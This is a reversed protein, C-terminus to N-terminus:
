FAMAAELPPPEACAAGAARAPTVIQEFEWTSMAALVPALSEGLASLSYAVALPQASLQIRAVIGDQELQRMQEAFVKESVKGVRRRLANSRVAGGLLHWLILPKWKGAVLNLAARLGCSLPAPAEQAYRIASLDNMCLDQKLAAHTAPLADM